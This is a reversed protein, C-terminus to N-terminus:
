NKAPKNRPARSEKHKRSDPLTKHGSQGVPRGIARIARELETPGAMKDVVGDVNFLTAVKQELEGMITWVIIHLDKLQPVSKWYRLVEFGSEQGFELDLIVVDPPVRRGEAVEKLSEIAYPVNSISQIDEVGMKRLVAASRSIDAPSDEVILARRMMVKWCLIRGSIQPPCLNLFPPCLNLFRLDPALLVIGQIIARDMRM